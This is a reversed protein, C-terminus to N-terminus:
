RVWLDNECDSFSRLLRGVALTLHTALLLLLQYYLLRLIYHAKKFYQLECCSFPMSTQWHATTWHCPIKRSAVAPRPHTPGRPWRRSPRMQQSIQSHLQPRWTSCCIPRSTPWKAWVDPSPRTWVAFASWQCKRRFPCCVAACSSSSAPCRPLRVDLADASGAAPFSSSDTQGWSPSTTWVSSACFDSVFRHTHSKFEVIYLINNNTQGKISYIMYFNVYPM